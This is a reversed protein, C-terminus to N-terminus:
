SVRFQLVRIKAGRFHRSGVELSGKQFGDVEIASVQM